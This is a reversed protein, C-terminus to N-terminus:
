DFGHKKGFEVCLQTRNKSQTKILASHLHSKVTGEQMNLLLAIQKNSLGQMAYRIIERERPSLPKGPIANANSM